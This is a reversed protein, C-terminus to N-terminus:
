GTRCGRMGCRPLMMGKDRAQSRISRYKALEDDTLEDGYQHHRGAESHIDAYKSTKEYCAGWVL